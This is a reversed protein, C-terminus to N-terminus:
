SGLEPTAELPGYTGYRVQRILGEALARDRARTYTGDKATLGVLAALEGSRIAGSARVTEAIARVIQETRDAVPESPGESEVRMWLLRRAHDKESTVVVTEAVDPEGDRSKPM